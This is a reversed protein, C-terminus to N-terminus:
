LRHQCACEHLGREDGSGGAEDAPV